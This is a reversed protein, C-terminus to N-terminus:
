VKKLIPRYDYAEMKSQCVSEITMLNDHGFFDPWSISRDGRRNYQVDVLSAIDKVVPLGLKEALSYITGAKDKLFDEYRVLIMQDAHREYIEVTRLWRRALTEIYNGGKSHYLAGDLIMRWVNSPLDRYQPGSLDELNGPLGLRNLISRINDRPDRLLFVSLSSPFFGALEEWLFILDPEKIIPKSFLWKNAYVFRDFSLAHELLAREVAFSGPQRFFIDLIVGNGTAEALLAAIATSGTKQNGFIFIPKRHIRFPINRLAWFSSRWRDIIIRRTKGIIDKITAMVPINLFM